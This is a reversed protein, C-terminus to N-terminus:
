QPDAGGASFERPTIAVHDYYNPRPPLLLESSEPGQSDEMRLFVEVWGCKYLMSVGKYPHGSDIIAEAIAKGWTRIYFRDESIPAM